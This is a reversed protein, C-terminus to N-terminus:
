SYRSWRLEHFCNRWKKGLRGQVMAKMNGSGKRGKGAKKRKGPSSCLAKDVADSFVAFNACFISSGPMGRNTNQRLGYFASSQKGKLGARAGALSLDNCPFSVTALTVTPVEAADLKNIDEVIFHDDADEFHAAYMEYKEQCIDNAFAIKWGERELGLRMLGIGAFFEAFTKRPETPVNIM